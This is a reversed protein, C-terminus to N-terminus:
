SEAEGRLAAMHRKALEVYRDTQFGIKTVQAEDLTRMLKAPRGAWIERPPIEKGPSLLAGAALMGGEGIVAADMAVAGMGVFARDSLVCGHVTAMHGIVCSKGIITPCGETDPRPGEVHIVTGDQVNSRAGVEIRHIDGRLVCNYWISAEPGILVDGIIRAGPAVFASDHIQPIKGEFPLITAWPFRVQPNVAPEGEM